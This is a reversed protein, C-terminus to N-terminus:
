RGVRPDLWRYVGDMLFGIVVFSTAIVMVGGSIVPLDQREIATFMLQGLGKWGFVFEVFVAGALLSAFWGSISTLVPNLANPLAHRWMVRGASLGKAYATRIYDQSMVELISSRTLQVVVGLPRIMLTLVPLIMNQLSWKKGEWPDIEYLSGTLPLHTGPLELVWAHPALVFVLLAMGWKWFRKAALTNQFIRKSQIWGVLFYSIIAVLSGFLPLRIETRWEVALLWALFVAVFFSPASMGLSSLTLIWKDTASNVKIASFVGLSIGLLAALLTSIIALLFTAPVTASLLANVSEGSIYSRSLYPFKFLIFGGDNKWCWGSIESPEIYWISQPNHPHYSIPSLQNLFAFFQTSLSEDLHWKHRTNEMVEASVNEGLINRVPDASSLHFLFFVVVAVGLVISLAYGVKKLGQVIM